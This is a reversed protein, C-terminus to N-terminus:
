FDFGIEPYLFDRSLEFNEESVERTRAFKDVADSPSATSNEFDTWERMLQTYYTYNNLM